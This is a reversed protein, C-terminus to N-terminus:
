ECLKKLIEKAEAEGLPTLKYTTKPSKLKGIRRILSPIMENLYTAFNNVPVRNEAVNRRIEKSLVKENGLSYKYGLLVALSIKQTKESDDKGVVKLLTLANNEIDFLERVKESNVRIKKALKEIDARGELPTIEESKSSTFIAELSKIRKEHEQLMEKIKKLENNERM